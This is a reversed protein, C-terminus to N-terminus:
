QKPHVPLHPMTSRAASLVDDHCCRIAFVLQLTPMCHHMSCHSIRQCHVLWCMVTYDFSSASLAPFSQFLLRCTDFHSSAKLYQNQTCDPLSAVANASPSHVQSFAPMRERSYTIAKDVAWIVFVFLVAQLVQLLNTKWARLRRTSSVDHQQYARLCIFHNSAFHLLLVNVHLARWRLKAQKKTLGVSQKYVKSMIDLATSSAEFLDSTHRHYHRDLATAQARSSGRRESRQESGDRSGFSGSATRDLPRVSSNLRQRAFAERILTVERKRERCM